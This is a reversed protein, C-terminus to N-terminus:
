CDIFLSNAKSGFLGGKMEELAVRQRSKLFIFLGQSSILLRQTEIRMIGLDMGIFAQYEEFELMNLFGQSGIFFREAESALLISPSSEAKRYFPTHKVIKLPIFLCERGIFPRQTEIGILGREKKVLLPAGQQFQVAMVLREQSKLLYASEIGVTSRVVHVIPPDQHIELAIFFSYRSELLSNVKVGILGLKKEPFATGQAREFPVCFRKSGIFLSNSKVGSVSKTNERLRRVNKLALCPFSRFNSAFFNVQVM